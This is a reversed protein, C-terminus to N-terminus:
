SEGESDLHQWTAGYTEGKKCDQYFSWAQDIDTFVREHTEASLDPPLGAITRAVGEQVSTNFTKWTVKYRKM